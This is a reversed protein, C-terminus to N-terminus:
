KNYCNSIHSNPIFEFPCKFQGNHVIIVISMTNVSKPLVKSAM